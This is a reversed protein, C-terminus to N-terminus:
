STAVRCSRRRHPGMYDWVESFDKFMFSVPDQDLAKLLKKEQGDTFWGDRDVIAFELTQDSIRHDLLPSGPGGPGGYQAGGPLGKGGTM